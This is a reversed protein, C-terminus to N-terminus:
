TIEFVRMATTRFLADRDMPAYDDTITDFADWLQDYTSYLGDVPFNSAFMCRTPGFADIAARVLPRISDTTWGHDCMGLGSIKITVHPLVSLRTLGSLWLAHEASSRRMPMGTHGVILRTAPEAEALAALAALQAPLAMVEVVLGRQGIERYGARWQADQLLDDRSTASLLPDADWNVMTRIGRFLPSRRHTDLEATLSLSAPSVSALIAHPFGHADAIRQVYATEEIAPRFHSEVYVSRSVNQASALKRFDDIAFDHKLRATNGIYRETDPAILMPYHLSGLTWLHHHADIKEIKMEGHQPPEAAQVLM